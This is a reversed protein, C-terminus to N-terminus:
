RDTREQPNTLPAHKAIVAHIADIDARYGKCGGALAILLKGAKMGQPARDWELRAEDAIRIASQLADILEKSM